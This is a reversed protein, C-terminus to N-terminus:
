KASGADAPSATGADLVPPVSVAAAEVTLTAAAHQGLAELTLPYKNPPVTDGIRVNPFIDALSLAKAGGRAVSVEMRRGNVVAASLPAVREGFQAYPFFWPSSPALAAGCPEYHDRVYCRFGVVDPAHLVTRPSQYEHTAETRPNRLSVTFSFPGFEEPQIALTGNKSRKVDCAGKCRVVVSINEEGCRLTQSAGKMTAPAGLPTGCLAGWSVSVNLSDGPLVDTATCRDCGIVPEEAEKPARMQAASCATVVVLLLLVSWLRARM